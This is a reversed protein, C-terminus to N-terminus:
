RKEKLEPSTATTVRSGERESRTAFRRDRLRAPAPYPAPEHIVRGCTRCTYVPTSQWDTTGLDRVCLRTRRCTPCWAYRERRASSSSSRILSGPSPSTTTWTKGDRSLKTSPPGSKAHNLCAPQRM